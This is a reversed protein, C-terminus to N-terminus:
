VSKNLILHVRTVCKNTSRWGRPPQYRLQCFHEIKPANQIQRRRLPRRAYRHPSAPEIRADDVRYQRGLFLDERM